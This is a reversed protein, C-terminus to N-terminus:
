MSFQWKFGGSSKRKGSCVAGIHSNNINNAEAAEKISPYTDLVKLTKIDLKDVKKKAAEGKMPKIRGLATNYLYISLNGTDYFTILKDIHEFLDISRLETNGGDLLYDCEKIGYEDTKSIKM